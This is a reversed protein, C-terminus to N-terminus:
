PAVAGALEFRVGTLQESVEWLRRAVAEDRAAANPSVKTPHGRQEAVGDPGVYSGGEIGPETAAYLTPLAGMEDSQAFVKNPVVMLLEDLRTPGAHQLNTAAWGPHAAVSKVRDRICM